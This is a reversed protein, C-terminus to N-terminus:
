CCFAFVDVVLCGVFYRGRNAKYKQLVSCYTIIVDAKASLLCGFNNKLLKDNYMGSRPKLRAMLKNSTSNLSYPFYCKLVESPICHVTFPIPLWRKCARIIILMEFIMCFHRVRILTTDHM